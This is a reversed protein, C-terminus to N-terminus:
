LSNLLGIDGWTVRRPPQHPGQPWDKHHQVPTVFTTHVWTDMYLQCQSDLAKQKAVVYPLPGGNAAQRGRTAHLMRGVAARNANVHMTDTVCRGRVGSEFSSIVRAAHFKYEKQVNKVARMDHALHTRIAHLLETHLIRWCSQHAQMTANRLGFLWTRLVAQNQQVTPNKPFMINAPIGRDRCVKDFFAWVPELKTCTGYLHTCTKEDPNDVFM